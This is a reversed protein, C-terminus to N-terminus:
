ELVVELKQLGSESLFDLNLLHYLVHRVPLEDMFLETFCAGFFPTLALVDM